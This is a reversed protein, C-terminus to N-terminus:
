RIYVTYGGITDSNHYSESAIIFCGPSKEGPHIIDNHDYVIEGSQTREFDCCGNAIPSDGQKSM